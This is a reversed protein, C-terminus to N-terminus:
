KVVEGLLAQVQEPGLVAVLEHLWQRAIENLQSPDCYGGPALEDPHALYKGAGSWVMVHPSATSDQAVCWTGPRDRVRVMRGPVLVGESDGVAPPPTEQTSQDGEAVPAAAHASDASSAPQEATPVLWGRELGEAIAEPSTDSRYVTFGLAVAEDDTLDEAPLRDGLAKNEAERRRVAEIVLPDDPSRKIMRDSHTLESGRHTLWRVEMNNMADAVRTKIVREIVAIHDKHAEWKPSVYDGVALEPKLAQRVAAETVKGGNLDAAKQLVEARQGEPAKALQSMASTSTPVAEVPVGSELLETLVEGALANEHGNAKKWNWRDACYAEFSPYGAAAWVGESRVAAVAAWIKAKGQEILGLGETIDAELEVLRATPDTAVIEAAIVTADTAVFTAPCPEECPWELHEPRWNVGPDPDILEVRWTLLPTQQIKGAEWHEGQFELLDGTAFPCPQVVVAEAPTLLEATDALIPATGALTQVTIYKFGQKQRIGTITEGTRPHQGKLRDGVQWERQPAPELLDLASLSVSWTFSDPTEVIACEGEDDVEVVM